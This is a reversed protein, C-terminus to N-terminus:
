VSVVREDDAVTAVQAETVGYSSLWWSASADSWPPGALAVSALTVVLAGALVLIAAIKTFRPKMM